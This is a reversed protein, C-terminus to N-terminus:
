PASAPAVLDIHQGVYSSLANVALSELTGGAAASQTLLTLAAQGNVPLNNNSLIQTVVPGAVPAIAKGADIVARYDATGKKMGKLKQM